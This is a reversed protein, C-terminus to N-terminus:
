LHILCFNSSIRLAKCFVYIYHLWWVSHKTLGPALYGTPKLIDFFSFILSLLRDFLALSLFFVYADFLLYRFFSNISFFFSFTCYFFLFYFIFFSFASALVSFLCFFLLANSSYFFLCISVSSSINIVLIVVITRTNLQAGRQLFPCPISTCEFRRANM